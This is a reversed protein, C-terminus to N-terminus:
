MTDKCKLSKIDQPTKSLQGSYQIVSQDSGHFIATRYEVLCPGNKSFIKKSFNSFDKGNKFFEFFIRFVNSFIDSDFPTSINFFPQKLLLYSRHSLNM